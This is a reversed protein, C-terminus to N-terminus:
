WAIPVCLIICKKIEGAIYVYIYINLKFNVEM